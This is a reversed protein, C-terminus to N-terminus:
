KGFVKHFQVMTETGGYHNAIIDKTPNGTEVVNIETAKVNLKKMLIGSQVDEYPFIRYNPDRFMKAADIAVSSSMIYFAGAAFDPYAIDQPWDDYSTYWRSETERHPFHNSKIKGAYFRKPLKSNLLTEVNKVAVYIDDDTKAIYTPMIPKNTKSSRLHVANEIGLLVKKSIGRYSEIAEYFLVIDGQEVYEKEFRRKQEENDWEIQDPNGCIFRYIM